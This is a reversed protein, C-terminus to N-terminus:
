RTQQDQLLLVAPGLTHLPVTAEVGPSQWSLRRADGRLFWFANVGPARLRTIKRGPIPTKHQM